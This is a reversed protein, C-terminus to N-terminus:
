AQGRVSVAFYNMKMVAMRWATSLAMALQMSLYAAISPTASSTMMKAFSRFDRLQFLHFTHM